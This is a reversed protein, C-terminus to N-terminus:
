KDHVSVHVENTKLWPITFPPNYGAAQWEVQGSVEKAVWGSGKLDTLLYGLQERAREARLNGSFTRVACLREPLRELRVNANSPKPAEEVSQYKSAPLLFMMTHRDKVPDILVPATMAIPEPQKIREQMNEPTSFVGIYRALAGFPSGDSSSGWGKSFETMVAISPEYRRIQFNAGKHVVAYRPMEESIRGFVMGM